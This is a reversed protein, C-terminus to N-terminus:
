PAILEITARRNQPERVGDPTPTLLDGEGRGDVTIADVSVGDRVLEDEVSAARRMSLKLNYKATGSTDTYGTIKVKGGAAIRKAASSIIRRADAMLDSKDFDFFVIYRSPSQTAPAPQAEAASPAPVPRMDIQALMRM